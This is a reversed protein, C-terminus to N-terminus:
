QANAMAMLRMNPAGGFAVRQRRQHPHEAQQVLAVQGILQGALHFVMFALQHGGAAVGHQNMVAPAHQEGVRGARPQHAVFGGVGQQLRGEGAQQVGVIQRVQLLANAGDQGVLRLAVLAPLRAQHAAITVFQGHRDIRVRQIKMALM